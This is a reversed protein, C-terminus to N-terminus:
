QNFKEITVFTNDAEKIPENLLFKLMLHHVIKVVENIAGISPRQKLVFGALTGWGTFDHHWVSDSKISVKVVPSKIAKFQQVDDETNQAVTVIHLLPVAFRGPDYDSSVMTNSRPGFFGGDLNIVKKMQKTRMALYMASQIGGGHGFATIDTSLVYKQKVMYQLLEGLLYTFPKYHSLDPTS